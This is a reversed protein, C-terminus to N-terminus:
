CKRILTLKVVEVHLGQGEGMWPPAATNLHSNQSWFRVLAEYGDTPGITQDFVNVKMESM